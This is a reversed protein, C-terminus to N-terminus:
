LLVSSQHYHVVIDIEWKFCALFNIAQICRLYLRLYLHCWFHFVFTLFTSQCVSRNMSCQMSPVKVTCMCQLFVTHHQKNVLYKQSHLKICSFDQQSIVTFTIYNNIYQLKVCHLITPYWLCHLIVDMSGQNILHLHRLVRHSVIVPSSCTEKRDKYAANKLKICGLM